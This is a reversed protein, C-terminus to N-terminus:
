TCTSSMVTRAIKGATLLAGALTFVAFIESYPLWNFLDAWLYWVDTLVTLLVNM